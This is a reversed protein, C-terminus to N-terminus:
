KGTKDLRHLLWRGEYKSLTANYMAGAWNWQFDVRKQAAFTKHTAAALITDVQNMDSLELFPKNIVRMRITHFAMTKLERHREPPLSAWREIDNKNEDRLVERPQVIEAGEAERNELCMKFVERLFSRADVVEADSMAGGSALAYFLVALVVAGLVLGIILAENRKKRVPPRGGEEGGDTQQSRRARSYRPNTM